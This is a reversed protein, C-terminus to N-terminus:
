SDAHADQESLGVAELAEAASGYVDVRVARGSRLEWVQAESLDLELGSGAGAM